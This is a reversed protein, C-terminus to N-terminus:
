QTKWTIKGTGVEVTLSLPTSPNAAKLSGAYKTNGTSKFGLAATNLSLSALLPDQILLPLTTTPKIQGNNLQLSTDVESAIAQWRLLHLTGYVYSLQTTEKLKKQQLTIGMGASTVLTLLALVILFEIFSFGIIQTNFEL